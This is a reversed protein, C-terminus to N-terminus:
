RTAAQPLRPRDTYFAMFIGLSEREGIPFAVLPLPVKYPFKPDPLFAKDFALMPGRLILDPWESYSGTFLDSVYNQRASVPTIVVGAAPTQAGSLADRVRYFDSRSRPVWVAPVDAYWAVFWPADSFVTENEEMLRGVVEVRDPVYPPWHPFQRDAMALGVKMQSPLRVAMPLATIGIALVAFGWQSWFSFAATSFRSWWVVLMASGFIALIPTLALYLNRDDTQNERLGILGTGVIAAGLLTATMWRADAAEARRFPHIFAVLAAMAPVIMGTLAWARGFQAQWHAGIGRLLLGVDVGPANMSLDRQLDESNGGVILTQFFAKTAGLADGTLGVNRWGWASLALAPLLGVLAAASRNGRLFFITAALLGLVLWVAMWHTMVMAAGTLGLGLLKGTHPEDNEIDIRAAVWLRVAIATELFLLMLPSGDCALDWLPASVMLCGAAVAAVKEDFLSRATGHTVYISALLLLVGLCAVVRDLLYISRGQGPEYDFWRELPKFVAALLLTPLPPQFTSPFARADPSAGHAQIQGWAYPRIVQTTLTGHRALERAMQAHDMGAESRLGRFIVFTHLLALVIALAYFALRLGRPIGEFPRQLAPPPESM